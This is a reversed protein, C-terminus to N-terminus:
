RSIGCRSTQISEDHRIRALGRFRLRSIQPGVRLFADTLPNSHGKKYRKPILSTTHQDAFQIRVDKGLAMEAEEGDGAVAKTVDRIIKKLTAKLNPAEASRLRVFRGEVEDGLGEALQLFLLDQSAVNPGTVIFAAPIKDPKEAPAEGAFAAVALLTNRNL